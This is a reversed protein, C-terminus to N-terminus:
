NNAPQPRLLRRAASHDREAEQHAQVAGDYDGDTARREAELSAWGAQDQAERAAEQNDSRSLSAAHLATVGLFFLLTLCAAGTHADRRGRRSRRIAARIGARHLISRLRMVAWRLPRAM